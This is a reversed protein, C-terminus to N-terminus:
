VLTSADFLDHLLERCCAKRDPAEMRYTSEYALISLQRYFPRLVRDTLDEKAVDKVVNWTLLPTRKGNSTSTLAIEASHIEGAQFDLSESLEDVLAVPKWNLPRYVADTNDTIFIWTRLQFEELALTLLTDLLKAAQLVSSPNYVGQAVTSNLSSLAARLESTVIPWFPALHVPSNKLILARLVMYVEARTTSSPSSAVTATTLDDLKGRVGNLGSIFSDNDASLILFAIRRLNLQAKRDADLRASSAGVGFVIGATTPSSLRSLLDSMREKDLLSWQRLIPMWGNEVIDLSDEHFFKSDNFADAADRRWFKSAEPIKSLVTLIDLTSITINRPFSKWRFSPALIQTSITTTAAAIRDTDILIKSVSPLIRAVIAVVDDPAASKRVDM